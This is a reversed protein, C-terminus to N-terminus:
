AGFQRLHHDHHKYAFIGIQEETMRGFFDHVFEPNSFREYAQVGEIWLKKQKEVDGEESVTFRKGAPTNKPLPKDNRTNSKLAWRGFIKGLFDQRYDEPQTGQVWEDWITCHKAMQYVNMKGWNRRSNPGITRIRGILENRTSPDFVTKM